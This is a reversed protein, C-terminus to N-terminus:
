GSPLELFFSSGEGPVSVVGIAGGNKEALEKSLILGLGTGRVDEQITNIRKRDIQFLQGVMDADMGEGSDRVELVVRNDRRQTAVGITGGAKSYRVANSVLNRVILLLTKKDAVVYHKPDIRNELSLGKKEAADSFEGWVQEFLRGANLEVPIITVDGRQSRAWLLLNELLAYARSVTEGVLVLDEDNRHTDEELMRNIVRASSGIPGKLDHALISFFKDKSANLEKLEENQACIWRQMLDNKAWLRYRVLMLPFLLALGILYLVGGNILMRDFPLNPRFLFIIFYSSLSVAPLVWAVRPAVVAVNAIFLALTCMHINWIMLVFESSLRGAALSALFFAPVWFAFFCVQSWKKVIISVTILGAAWLVIGIRFVLFEAWLSPLIFYEVVTYALIGIAGAVM